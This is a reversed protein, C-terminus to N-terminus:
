SVHGASAVVLPCLISVCVTADADRLAPPPLFNVLFLILFPMPVQALGLNRSRQRRVVLLEWRSYHVPLATVIAAGIVFVLASQLLRTSLLSLARMHALLGMEGSVRLDRIKPFYDSWPQMTIYDLEWLEPAPPLVMKLHRHEQAIACMGCCQCWCLCCTGCCCAALFQWLKSCFDQTENQHQHPSPRVDVRSCACIAHAGYIENRHRRLFSNLGPDALTINEDQPHEKRYVDLALNRRFFARTHQFEFMKWLFGFIVFLVAVQVMVNEPDVAWVVAGASGVLTMAVILPREKLPKPSKRELLYQNREWLWVGCCALACADSKSAKKAGFMGCLSSGFIGDYRHRDEPRPHSTGQPAQNQAM